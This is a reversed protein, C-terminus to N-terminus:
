TLKLGCHKAFHRFDTDRTILAVDHDLWSQAILTDPIKPKCRRALLAARMAAARLWYGETVELLPWESLIPSLTGFSKHDSLVETLVVPALAIQGSRLAEAVPASDM